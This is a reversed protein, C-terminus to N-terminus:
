PIDEPKPAERTKAAEAFAEAKAAKGEAKKVRALLEQFRPHKDFRDEDAKAEEAKKTEAEEQTKAEKQPEGTNKAVEPEADVVPAQPVLEVTNILDGDFTQPTTSSVVPSENLTQNM